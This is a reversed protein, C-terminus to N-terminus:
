GRPGPTLREMAMGPGYACACERTTYPKEPETTRREKRSRATSWRMASKGVLVALFHDNRHNDSRHEDTTPTTPHPHPPVPHTDEPPSTPSKTTRSRTTLATQESTDNLPHKLQALLAKFPTENFPTRARHQLERPSMARFGQSSDRNKPRNPSNDTPEARREALTEDPYRQIGM